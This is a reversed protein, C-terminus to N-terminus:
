WLPSVKKVHALLRSYDAATIKGDGTVDAAKLITEDTIVNTKKVHALLRSYDAATVKGDGTVDGLLYDDEKLEIQIADSEVSYEAIDTARIRVKILNGDGEYDLGWTGDELQTMEMPVEESWTGDELQMSFLAQVRSLHADNVKARIQAVSGANSYGDITFEEIVPATLDVNFTYEYTDSNGTTDELTFSMTHEGEALSENASVEYTFKGLKVNYHDAINSSDVKVVGDLMFVFSNVNLGSVDDVYATITPNTRFNSVDLHELVPACSDAALVYQGAKTIQATVTMADLDNEAGVYEYHTGEENFYYIAIGGELVIDSEKTLGAAELDEETYRMELTLATEGFDTIAEGTDADEVGVLVVYGITAINDFKASAMDTIGSAVTTPTNRTARAWTSFSQTANNKPSSLSVLWNKVNEAVPLIKAKLLEVGEEVQKKITEYISDYVNKLAPLAYDTIIDKMQFTLQDVQKYIAEEDGRGTVYAMEAIVDGNATAYNISHRFALEIQFDVTNGTAKGIGILDLLDLEGTTLVAERAEEESYKMPIESSALANSLKLVEVMSFFITPDNM